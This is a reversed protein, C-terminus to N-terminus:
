GDAEGGFQAIRQDLDDLVLQWSSRLEATGATKMTQVIIARVIQLSGKTPPFHRAM